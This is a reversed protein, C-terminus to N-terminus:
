EFDFLKLIITNTMYFNTARVFGDVIELLGAKNILFDLASHHERLFDAGFQENYARIDLGKATRLALMITEEKATLLTEKEKEVIANTPEKLYETLKSTNQWHTGEYFSYAGLGFGVFEGRQWYNLNHKSQYGPKSFNSIEYRFFGNQALFDVTFDYFNVVDLSNQEPVCKQQIKKTLPTDPENILSYASIHTIPLEVVSQLLEKIDWINQYPIGLLLDINIDTIGSLIAYNIAEKAQLFTHPRNLLNLHKQNKAQLGMSLRNCGARKYEAAKEKTFTNPNAEITIDVENSVDFNDRIVDLIEQIGGSPLVSPTGGGVYITSVQRDKYHICANEIELKLAAIYDLMMREDAVFSCFNCYSCKSVCFPIHIYLSLKQKKM